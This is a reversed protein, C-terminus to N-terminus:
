SGETKEFWDYLDQPSSDSILDLSEYGPSLKMALIV